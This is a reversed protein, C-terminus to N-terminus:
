ILLKRGFGFNEEIVNTIVIQFIEKIEKIDNWNITIPIGYLDEVVVSKTKNHNMMIVSKRKIDTWPRHSANHMKHSFGFRREQRYFMAFPMWSLENTTLSDKVKLKTERTM